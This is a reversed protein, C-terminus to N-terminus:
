YMEQKNETVTGDILGSIFRAAREGAHGDEHVGYKEMFFDVNRAYQNYDFNEISNILEENSSAVPFPLTNYDILFGREKKLYTERDTALLFVPKRVFATEFMISSYDTIMMDSVAVLEESDYYESVDVVYSPTVIEKSYAAVNPHLRLLIIWDSGFRAELCEKVLGFNLDAKYAMPKDYRFSEGLRFTPAYLLLKKGVIQPYILSLDNFINDSNFLVDSRPSGVNVFKGTYDFGSRCTELDFKSGVFIYDVDSYDGPKEHRYRLEDNAFMKLTISAWHKMQIYIQEKRKKINPLKGDVLWIRSTMIEYIYDRYCDWSVLRLNGPIPVNMNNVIWVIDLDNRFCLLQKVIEKGHGSYDFMSVVCIKKEDVTLKEAKALFEQKRDQHESVCFTQRYQAEMCLVSFYSYIGKTELTSIIENYHMISSILVVIDNPSYKWLVSPSLIRMEKHKTDIPEFILDRAYRGQFKQNSDVIVDVLSKEGYKFYYFDTGEGIGFLVVKKQKAAQEFDKWTKGNLVPNDSIHDGRKMARDIADM